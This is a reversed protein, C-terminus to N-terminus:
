ETNGYYEIREAINFSDVMLCYHPTLHIDFGLLEDLQKITPRDGNDDRYRNTEVIYFVDGKITVCTPESDRNHYAHLQRWTPIVIQGESEWSVIQQIIEPVVSDIQDAPIFQYDGSGQIKKSLM